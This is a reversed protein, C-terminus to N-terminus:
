PVGVPMISLPALTVSRSQGGLFFSRAIPTDSFNLLLLGGPPLPTAFLGLTPDGAGLADRTIGSLGPRSALLTRASAGFGEDDRGVVIQGSGLARTGGRTVQPYLLGQDLRQPAILLGGARVWALIRELTASDWVDGPGFILARYRNLGGAAIMRENVLDFDFQARLDQIAPLFEQSLFPRGFLWVHTQPYFCAIDTAAPWDRFFRSRTLWADFTEPREFWLADEKLGRVVTPAANYIRAILSEDSIEPSAEHFTTTGYLRAASDLWRSLSFRTAYDSGGQV